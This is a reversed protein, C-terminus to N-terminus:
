MAQTIQHKEVPDLVKLLAIFTNIDASGATCITLSLVSGPQGDLTQYM